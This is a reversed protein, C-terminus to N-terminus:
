NAVHIQVSNNSMVVTYVGDASCVINDGTLDFYDAVEDANSVGSAGYTWDQVTQAEKLVKCVKFQDGAKIETTVDWKGGVGETMYTATAANWEGGNVTGVLAWVPLETPNIVAELSEQYSNLGAQLADTDDLAAAAAVSGLTKAFDWWAGPIAGQPHAYPAQALLAALAPNAQVKENKAAKLNSPGWAAVNFRELQCKEGTLYNALAHCVALKNADTQPKVGMLKNGSFSGLHYKQGDITFKPLEAVGLNDGLAEVANNYDWTGSVVVSAPIAAAFQEKVNSSSVYASSKVLRQMGRMAVLGKASNFDDAVGVFDGDTNTTWESICGTGFFFSAIYWASTSTEMAFTTGAAECAAVIAEMNDVIDEEIVTKDYYMFYGNDSTMPYAYLDDGFTVAAVSGADNNAKVQASVGAGLKNLANGLVLDSSQDQAFCYIDAAEDVSQLVKSAANAESVEEYTLTIEVGENADAFDKVQQKFLEPVGETESGWMTISYSGAPLSGGGSTQSSESQQSQSGQSTASSQGGGGGGGCAGLMMTSALLSMMLVNKVKM